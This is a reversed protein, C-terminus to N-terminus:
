VTPSLALIKVPPTLNWTQPTSWWVENSGWRPLKLICVSVEQGDGEDRSWNVCGSVCLVESWRESNSWRWSRSGQAKEM